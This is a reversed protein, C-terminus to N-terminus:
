LLVDEEMETAPTEEEDGGSPTASVDTVLRVSCGYNRLVYNGPYVDGSKFRVLYAINNSYATSSWYYGIDGVSDVNSGDRYGAAPLFVAGASEMKAWETLDYTNASFAASTTNISAIATVGEPHAYTDPLLIIGNIENVTAMAYRANETGSVTSATRTNFLYQWEATSLTRWTNDDGIKCGWDETQELNGSTRSVNDTAQGDPVISKTADYGWTFLSVTDAHHGDYTNTNCFDYQNEYFEWKTGIVVYRLNGKSFHVKKGSADVTFVGKLAGEPTDAEPSKWETATVTYLTGAAIETDAKVGTTIAKENTGDSFKLDGIKLGDPVLISVYVSDTTVPAVRITSSDTFASGAPIYNAINFGEAKVEVYEPSAGAAPKICFVATKNEFSLSEENEGTMSAMCINASAFTGDQESSVFVTDIQNNDNMKAAKYPYVATLPGTLNTSITAVEGDVKVDCTDLAKGNSILISDNDVFKPQLGDLETKTQPAFSVAIVRSGESAPAVKDNEFNPPPSKRPAPRWPRQPPSPQM